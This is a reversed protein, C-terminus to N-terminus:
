RRAVLQKYIEELKEASKNVDHQKVYERASQQKQQLLPKNSLLEELARAAGELDNPSYNFGAGAEKVLEPVASSEFDAAAVACGHAMAELTAISQLETPSPMILLDSAELLIQKAEEAVYGLFKVKHELKAGALALMTNLLPGKGAIAIVNDSKLHQAIELLDLSNKEPSLRGLYTLLNVKSGLLEKRLAEAQKQLSSDIKPLQVGNSVVYVPKHTFNSALGAAFSTPTVLADAQKYFYSYWKDLLKEISSRAFKFHLSTSEVQAHFGIAIPIGQKRAMQCTFLALPTPTNIQVVESCSLLNRIAKRFPLAFHTQKNSPRWVPLRDVRIGKPPLSPVKEDGALVRISHGRKILAKIHGETASAQGGYGPYLDDAVVGIRM